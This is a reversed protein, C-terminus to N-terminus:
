DKDLMEVFGQVRTALQGEQIGTAELEVVMSRIGDRQLAYKLFPEDALHPTCFKQIVFLVGKAGSAHILNKLYPLREEARCRSPCAIRRTYRNMLRTLPDQGNIEPIHFPRLGTCLDDAVIHMGSSELIDFIKPDEIYSGSLLIPVGSSKSPGSNKLTDHLAQLADLYEVPPMIFFAQIVDYLEAATLPLRGEYRWEYLDLVLRRIRDYLDLSEALATIHFSNGAEGLKETLEMIASRFFAMGDPSHNYPIPLTHYLAKPFNERWINVMGCVVDCTYGQIIGALFDYKGSLAMELSRLLPPCIFQPALHYARDVRGSGGFIRVPLFGAAYILEIPTYTCFYGIVNKGSDNNLKSFSEPFNKLNRTFPEVTLVAM